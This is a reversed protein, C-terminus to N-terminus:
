PSPTPRKARAKIKAKPLSSVYRICVLLFGLGAIVVGIAIGIEGMPSGFRGIMMADASSAKEMVTLAHLLFAGGLVVAFGVVASVLAASLVRQMAGGERRAESGVIGDSRRDDHPHRMKEDALRLEIWDADDLWQAFLPSPPEAQGFLAETAEDVQVAITNPDASGDRQAAMLKARKYYLERFERPEIGREAMMQRTVVTRRLLLELGDVPPEVFIQM